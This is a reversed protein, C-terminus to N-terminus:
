SNKRDKRLFENRPAEEGGVGESSFPQTRLVCKGREAEKMERGYNAVAGVGEGERILHLIPVGTGLSCAVAESKVFPPQSLSCKTLLSINFIGQSMGAM